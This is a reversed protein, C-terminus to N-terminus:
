FRSMMFSGVIAFLLVTTLSFIVHNIGKYIKAM